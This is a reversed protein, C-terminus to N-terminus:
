TVIWLQSSVTSTEAREPTVLTPQKGISPTEVHEPIAQVVELQQTKSSPLINEWSLVSSGLSVPVLLRVLVLLWLGYRLGAGLKRGLLARVVLVLVLLITGSVFWEVNM